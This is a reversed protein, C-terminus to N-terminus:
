ESHENAAIDIIKGNTLKIQLIGDAGGEGPTFSVVQLGSDSAIIGGDDILSSIALPIEITVAFTDASIIGSNDDCLAAFVVDDAPDYEPDPDDSAIQACLAISKVPDTGNEVGEFAVSVSLHGSAHSVGIVDGDAGDFWEIPKSALDGRSDMDYQSGAVARTFVIKESDNVAKRLLAAGDSTLVQNKFVSM